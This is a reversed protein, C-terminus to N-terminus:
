IMLSKVLIKHPIPTIISQYHLMPLIWQDSGEKGKAGPAKGIKGEYNWNQRHKRFTEISTLWYEEILGKNSIRRSSDATVLVGIHTIGCGENEFKSIMAKDYAWSLHLKVYEGRLKAAWYIRLQKGNIKAKYERIEGYFSKGRSVRKYRYIGSSHEKYNASIKVPGLAM